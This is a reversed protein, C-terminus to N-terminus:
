ISRLTRRTALRKTNQAIQTSNGASSSTPTPDVPVEIGFDGAAVAKLVEMADSKATVRQPAAKVGEGLRNMLRFIVIDLVPGKLSDPIGAVAVSHRKRLYGRALNTVTDIVNPLPDAQGNATVRNRYQTLEANNLAELVDSEGLTIWNSM